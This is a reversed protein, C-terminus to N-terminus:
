NSFQLFHLFWSFLNFSMVISFDAFDLSCIVRSSFCGLKKLLYISWLFHQWPLPQSLFPKGTFAPPSLVQPPLLIPSIQPCKEMFVLWNYSLKSFKIYFFGLLHWSSWTIWTLIVQSQPLSFLAGWSRHYQQGSHTQTRDCPFVLAMRHFSLGDLFWWPLIRHHCPTLLVLFGRGM